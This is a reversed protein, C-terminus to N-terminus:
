IRLDRRQFLCYSAATLAAALGASLAAYGANFEGTLMMGGAPFYRFPTLFTLAQLDPNLEIAGSLLYAFLLIGAALGASAKGRGLAAASAAGLSLFVLQILLLALTMRALGGMYPMDSYYGIIGASVAFVFLNLIVAITLAALLKATTIAARTRPKVFLFESTRDREEKSIIVAGLMAAHVAALLSVLGFVVVFFSRADSLDLGELGMATKMSDPLETVFQNISQGAEAMGAYKGMSALILLAIGLCWLILSRRNARLERRYVNM